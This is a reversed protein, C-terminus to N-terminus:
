LQNTIVFSTTVDIQNRPAYLIAAPSFLVRPAPTIFRRGEILPAIVLVFRALRGHLPV